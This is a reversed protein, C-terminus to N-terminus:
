EPNRCFYYDREVYEYRVPVSSDLEAWVEDLAADWDTYTPTIRDNPPIPSMSSKMALLSLRFATRAEQNKPVNTLEIRARHEVKSWESFFQPVVQAAVTSNFPAAFIPSPRYGLKEAVLAEISRHYFKNFPGSTGIAIIGGPKTVRMIEQIARLYDCHYLMFMAISVDVSSDKVGLSHADGVMFDVPKLGTSHSATEATTLAEDSIDVGILPGRHGHERLSLLTGGNGCGHDLITEDGRLQLQSRLVTEPDLRPVAFPYVGFRAVQNLSSPAYEARVDLDHATPCDIPRKIETM